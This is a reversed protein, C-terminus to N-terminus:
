PAFGARRRLGSSPMLDMLIEIDDDATTTTTTDRQAGEALISEDLAEVGSSQEGGQEHEQKDGTISRQDLRIEIPVLVLGLRNAADMIMILFETNLIYVDAKANPYFIASINLGEYGLKAIALKYGKQDVLPNADIWKRVFKALSAVSEATSVATSKPQVNLTFNCHRTLRRTWNHIVLGKFETHPVFTQRRRFDRIVVHGWTVGEIFGALVLEPNSHPATGPRTLSIIEGGHFSNSLIIPILSQLPVNMHSASTALTVLTVLGLIVINETIDVGSLYLLLLAVGVSNLLATYVAIVEALVSAPSRCGGPISYLQNKEDDVHTTNGHMIRLWFSTCEASSVVSEVKAAYGSVALRIGELFSFWVIVLTIAIASNILAVTAEVLEETVAIKAALKLHYLFLVLIVFVHSPQPMLPESWSQADITYHSTQDADRILTTGLLDTLVKEIKNLLLCVSLIKPIFTLTVVILEFKMEETFSLQFLHFGDDLKFIVAPITYILIFLLFLACLQTVLQRRTRPKSADMENPTPRELNGAEADGTM